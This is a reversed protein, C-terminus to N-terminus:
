PLDSADRFEDDPITFSMSEGDDISTGSALSVETGGFLGLYTCISDVSRSGEAYENEFYACGDEDTTSTDSSGIFGSFLILVKYNALPKGSESTLYISCSWSVTDGKAAL